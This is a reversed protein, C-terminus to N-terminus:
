GCRRGALRLRMGRYGGGRYGPRSARFDSAGSRGMKDDTIILRHQLRQRLQDSDEIAFNQSGSPDDPVDLAQQLVMMPRPDNPDIVREGAISYGLLV